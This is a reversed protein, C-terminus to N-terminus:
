IGEKQYNVNIEQDKKIDQIAIFTAIDKVYDISWDANPTDSHNLMNMYGSAHWFHKGDLYPFASHTLLSGCYEKHRMTMKQIIPLVEIIDGENIKTDTFVGYGHITSTQIHLGKAKYFRM